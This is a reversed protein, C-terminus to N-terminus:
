NIIVKLDCESSFNWIQPCTPFNSMIGPHQVPLQFDKAFIYYMKILYQATYNGSEKHPNHQKRIKRM